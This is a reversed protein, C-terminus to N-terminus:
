CNYDIMYNHEMGSLALVTIIAIMMISQELIICLFGCVFGTFLLLTAGTVVGQSVEYWASFFLFHCPKGLTDGVNIYNEVAVMEANEALASITVVLFCHALLGRTEQLQGVPWTM